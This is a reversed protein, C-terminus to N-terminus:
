KKLNSEIWQTMQHKDMVGMKQAVIEDQDNLLVSFPIGRVNYQTALAENKDIDIDEVPYKDYGQLLNTMVKCPGCWEARFKLVKM